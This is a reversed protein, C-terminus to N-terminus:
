KPTTRKALEICKKQSALNITLKKESSCNEM